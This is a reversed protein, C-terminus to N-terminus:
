REGGGRYEENSRNQTHIAHWVRSATMPMDLHRVGLPQLADIVANALAPISATCGSEGVGKVGLPSVNSPTPHEALRLEKILGARPMFYDSFSGTLLQGTDPQYLVQEGFVQGAGQIVAGHVQGEVVTHDIVEGCDDVALYRVIDASGTEPDIEVEAIHCGNPYTAGFSGQALVRLRGGRGLDGLTLRRAGGDTLFEGMAYEVQSPEVEFELAALAKGHAILKYAALHCVSGAGVATRSGGSHNGVLVRDLPSQTLHVRDVSVDMASAVIMPLTTEHGQGQSQSVSYIAIGGGSDVVLEIEDVAFMGGSTNEIVTSIGIGRLKGASETAARRQAFGTWDSLALAKELLGPLDACEYISGTATKYPFACSPIFNRRRLEAADVGTGAAAHSALREVVYAIDPRGAGRYSAVPATNNLAVRFRGYLAPIRYVGTMCTIANGILSGPGRTLYAGADTIWDLRLALFRGGSDLALEAYVINSRGHTDCLFGESRSCVWKVPRGTERAALMLACYEPYAMSRQGFSGGVDRAVIRLRQEPVGTYGSLQKRMLNIGQLPLHLTYTDDQVDYAVLCARPELPNPVVRTSEIRLKAVYAASEMAAQVAAADGAETDLVLNGDVNEHLQPAGPRLAEQLGTVVPLERYEVEVREAADQAILQSTAIVLAVPDGVFRVRDAAIVARATMRAKRGDRGPRMPFDQPHVYGARVAEAGTLVSLVGPYQLAPEVNVSVIEAHARDSRLFCAHLEGPLSWDAAYQGCGTLLRADERRTGRTLM